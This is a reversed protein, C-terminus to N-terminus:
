AQFVAIEDLGTERPASGSRPAPTDSRDAAVADLEDLLDGQGECPQKWSEPYDTADKWWSAPKARLHKGM